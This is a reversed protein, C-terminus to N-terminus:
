ILDDREFGQFTQLFHLIDAYHEGKAEDKHETRWKNLADAAKQAALNPGHLRIDYTVSRNALDDRIVYHCQLHQLEPSYRPKGNSRIEAELLRAMAPAETSLIGGSCLQWNPAQTIRVKNNVISNVTSGFQEFEESRQTTVWDLSATTLNKALIREQAVATQYSAALSFDATLRWQFDEYNDNVYITHNALKIADQFLKDIRDKRQYRSAVTDSRHLALTEQFAKLKSVYYGRDQKFNEERVIDRIQKLSWDSLDVPGSDSFIADIVITAIEVWGTPAESATSHVYGDLVEPSATAQLISWAAESVSETNQTASTQSPYVEAQATNTMSLSALVLTGATALSTAITPMKM